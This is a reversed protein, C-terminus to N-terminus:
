IFFPSGSLLLDENSEQTYADALDNDNVFEGPMDLRAGPNLGLLMM